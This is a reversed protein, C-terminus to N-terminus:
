HGGRYLFTVSAKTLGPEMKNFEQLIWAAVFRRRSFQKRPHPKDQELNKEFNGTDQHIEEHL